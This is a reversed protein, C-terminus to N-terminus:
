KATAGMWREVVPIMSAYLSDMDDPRAKYWALSRNFQDLTVGHHTFITKYFAAISDPNKLERPHVSDKVMGSYVEAVNIDLMIQQMKEPPLHYATDKNKCCVLM